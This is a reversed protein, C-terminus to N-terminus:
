IVRTVAVAKRLSESLESSYNSGFTLNTAAIDMYIQWEPIYYADGAVDLGDVTATIASGAAMVSYTILYRPMIERAVLASNVIGISLNQVDLINEPTPTGVFTLKGVPLVPMESYVGTQSVQVLGELITRGRFKSLTGFEGISFQEIPTYKILSVNSSGTWFVAQQREELDISDALDAGYISVGANRLALLVSEDMHAHLTEGALDRTWDYSTAKKNSFGMAELIVHIEPHNTVMTMLDDVRYGFHTTWETLIGNVDFEICSQPYFTLFHDASTRVGALFYDKYLYECVEFMDDSVYVLRMSSVYSRIWEASGIPTVSIPHQQNLNVNLTALDANRMNPVSNLGPDLRIGNQMRVNVSNSARFGVFMTALLAESTRLYDEIDDATLQSQLAHSANYGNIIATLNEHALNNVRDATFTGLSLVVNKFGQKENISALVANTGAVVNSTGGWWKPHNSKEDLIHDLKGIAWKNYDIYSRVLNIPSLHKSLWGIAQQTKNDLVRNLEQMPTSPKTGAPRPSNPTRNSNNGKNGNEPRPKFDKAEVHPPKHAKIDKEKQTPGQPNKESDKNRNNGM